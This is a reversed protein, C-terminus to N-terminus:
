EKPVEEQHKGRKGVIGEIETDLKLEAEELGRDWSIYAQKLEKKEWGVIM